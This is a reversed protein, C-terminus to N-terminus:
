EPYLSIIQTLFPPSNHLYENSNVQVQLAPDAANVQATYNLLFPTKDEDNSNNAAQVSYAGEAEPNFSLTVPLYDEPSIIEPFSHLSSPSFFTDDSFTISEIELDQDGDSQLSQLSAGAVVDIEPGSLGPANDGIGCGFLGYEAILILAIM